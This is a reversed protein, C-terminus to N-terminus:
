ERAVQVLVEHHQVEVRSPALEIRERAALQPIQEALAAEAFADNQGGSRGVHEPRLAGDQVVAPRVNLVAACLRPADGLPAVGRVVADGNKNRAGAGDVDQSRCVQRRELHWAEVLKASPRPGAAAEPAPHGRLLRDLFGHACGRVNCAQLVRQHHEPRGAGESASHRPRRLQAGGRLAEGRVGTAAEPGRLVEDRLAHTHRRLSLHQAVAAAVDELVVALLKLGADDRKGHAGRGGLARQCRRRSRLDACEGGVEQLPPALVERPLALEVRHGSERRRWEPVLEVTGPRGEQDMEGCAKHYWRQWQAPGTRICSRAFVVVQDDEVAVRPVVLQLGRAGAPGSAGHGELEAGEERLARSPGLHALRVDDGRRERRVLSRQWTDGMGAVTALVVAHVDVACPAMRAADRNGHRTTEALMNDRAAHVQRCRVVCARARRSGRLPPRNELASHAVLHIRLM